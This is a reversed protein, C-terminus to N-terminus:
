SMKERVILQMNQYDVITVVRDKEIYGVEAVADYYNDDHIIRGSPRLITASMAEQGILLKLRSDSATYGDEKNEETQLALHGLFQTKLVRQAVYFSSVLGLFMAFLVLAFARGLEGFNGKPLTFGDSEVLGFALSAVVLVIGLIGTVGFGPIAFVEIALLVVGIVFVIIEWNSALGEIYLPAFFLMAATISALIPFGVGPTQLEFYLGGIIIMILLGSVVPSILLRTIKDLNSLEQKVIEFEEVGAIRLVDHITEAEGQCFGLAIAEKTTLTLVKGSDSINPIYVDPDVMAQAIDPDRGKVEATSRMMSRMYSQYKDPLAEASQTVVTAAGINSGKRMYISDCAISILAGASAANNDIFVWVPIKSNLIATRISDAMDVTGGYTNLHILILDANIKQAERFAKQTNYWAPKAIEEKIEFVYIKFPKEREDTNDAFVPFINSLVIYLIILIKLYTNMTKKNKVFNGKKIIVDVLFL